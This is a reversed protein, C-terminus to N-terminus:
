DFLEGLVFEDHRGDSWDAVLCDGTVAVTVPVSRNVSRGLRHASVYVTPLGPAPVGTLLPVASHEGFANGGRYRAVGSGTWGHLPVLEVTVEAGHVVGGEAAPERAGTVAFSGERVTWGGGPATVSHARLEFGQHLVSLSVVRAGPVDVGNM